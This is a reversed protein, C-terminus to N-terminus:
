NGTDIMQCLIVLNYSDLLLFLIIDMHNTNSVLLLSYYIFRYNIPELM